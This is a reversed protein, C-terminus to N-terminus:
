LLCLPFVAPLLGGRQAHAPDAPPQVARPLRSPRRLGGGGPVAPMQSLRLGQGEGGGRHGQSGEGAQLSQDHHGAGYDTESKWKLDKKVRYTRIYDTARSLDYYWDTAAKPSEACRALFSRVVESPRPTLLGMLRADLLDRETIGGEIIGQAEAFDLLEKLIAELDREEPQEAPRTYADLGLAAILANEAWVRDEEEILGRHMAYEVLRAISEDIM